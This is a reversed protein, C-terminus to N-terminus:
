RTQSQTLRIIYAFITYTDAFRTDILTKKFM